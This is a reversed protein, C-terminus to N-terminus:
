IKRCNQMVVPYNGKQRFPTARSWSLYVSRSSRFIPLCLWPPKTLSAGWLGWSGKSSWLKRSKLKEVYPSISEWFYFKLTNPISIFGTKRKSVHARRPITKNNERSATNDLGQAGGMHLHLPRTKNERVTQQKQQRYNYGSFIAFYVYSCNYSIFNMQVEKSM